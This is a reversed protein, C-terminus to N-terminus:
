QPPQRLRQSRPLSRCQPRTRVAAPSPSSPVASRPLSHPARRGRGTTVARRHRQSRPRRPMCVGLSPSHHICYGQGARRHPNLDKHEGRGATAETSWTEGVCVSINPLQPGCAPDCKEERQSCPHGQLEPPVGPGLPILATERPGVQSEARDEPQLCLCLFPAAPEQSTLADAFCSPPLTAAVQWLGAVVSTVSLLAGTSALGARQERLSEQKYSSM